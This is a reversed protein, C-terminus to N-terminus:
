MEVGTVFGGYKCKYIENRSGLVKRCLERAAEESNSKTVFQYSQGNLTTITWSHGPM